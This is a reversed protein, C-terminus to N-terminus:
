QGLAKAPLLERLADLRGDIYSGAFLAQVVERIPSKIKHVDDLRTLQKDAHANAIARLGAETHKAQEAM